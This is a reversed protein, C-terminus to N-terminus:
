TKTVKIIGYLDCFPRFFGIPKDIIKLLKTHNIINIYKNVCAVGPADHTHTHGSLWLVQDSAGFVGADYDPVKVGQGDFKFYQLDNDIIDGTIKTIYCFDNIILLIIWM